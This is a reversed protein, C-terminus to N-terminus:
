YSSKNYYQNLSKKLMKDILFLTIITYILVILKLWFIITSNMSLEQFFYPFQNQRNVMIIKWCGQYRNEKSTIAKEQGKNFVIAKDVMEVSVIWEQLLYM